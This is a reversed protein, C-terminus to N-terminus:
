FNFFSFFFYKFNASNVGNPNGWGHKQKLDFLKVVEEEIKKKIYSDAKLAEMQETVEEKFIKVDELGVVRGKSIMEECQGLKKKIKALETEQLHMKERDELLEQLHKELEEKRMKKKNKTSLKKKSFETLVKEAQHVTKEQIGSIEDRFKSFELKMLALKNDFHREQKKFEDSLLGNRKGLDTTVTELKKPINLKKIKEVDEILNEYEHKNLFTFDKKEIYKKLADVTYQKQDKKNLANLKNVHTSMQEM